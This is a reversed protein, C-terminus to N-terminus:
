YFATMVEDEEQRDHFFYVLAIWSIRFRVILLM